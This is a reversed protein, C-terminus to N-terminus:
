MFKRRIDRGLANSVANAMDKGLNDAYFERLNMVSAYYKKSFWRRRKRPNDRGIDGPNGRPTNSGVGADVYIGYLLFKQKLTVSTYKGDANTSIALVSNYLAGTDIVGLKAIQEKWIRIMTRNFAKVYREREQLSNDSNNNQGSM